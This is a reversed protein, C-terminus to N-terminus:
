GLENDGLFGAIADALVEPAEICPLHGVGDIVRLDAGPILDAMARVLAPPTAADTEGVVCLTPVTISRAAETLDADRIARCTAVYGKATMRTLANRWLRVEAPNDTLFRASFWRLMVADAIAELGGEEVAAIRADWMEAPGIKHATDCLVLGAVRHPQSSWLAQAILGGVSLGVVVALEVELADLLLELDHALALIPRDGAPDSLGHGPKDWRIHRCHPLFRLVADWSRLDTGLSNAYVLVPGDREGSDDYAIIRGDIDFASAM